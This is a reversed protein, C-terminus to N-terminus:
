TREGRAPLCKPTPRRESPRVSEGLLTDDSAERRAVTEVPPKLGGELREDGTAGTIVGIGPRGVVGEALM